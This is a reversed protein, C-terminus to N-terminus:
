RAAEDLAKNLAADSAKISVHKVMYPNLRLIGMDGASSGRLNIGYLIPSSDNRELFAARIMTKTDHISLSTEGPLVGLSIAEGAGHPYDLGFTARGDNDMVGLGGREDGNADDFVLGAGAGTRKGIMGNIQPDPMPAGIAIRDAGSEGLVILGVTDDRRKRQGPIPAGMLIRERGAADEVILGKVRLVGLSKRSAFYNNALFSLVTVLVAISLFTLVQLRRLRKELRSVQSELDSGAM